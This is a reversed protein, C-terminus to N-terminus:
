PQECRPNPPGVVMPSCYRPMAGEDLTLAMSGSGCTGTPRCSYGGRCDGDSGCSQVCDRKEWSQRACIGEDLCVEDPACGSVVLSPDCKPPDALLLVDPFFRVCVSDSPCSRADCGELICYGGPQSLDCTRTGGTPDCDTSTTCSDGIKRSCAMGAAVFLALSVAALLLGCRPRPKLASRRATEIRNRAANLPMTSSELPKPAGRHFIRHGSPRRKYRM